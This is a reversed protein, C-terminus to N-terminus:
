RLIVIPQAKRFIEKNGKLLAAKLYYIGNSIDPLTVSYINKIDPNAIIKKVLRFNCTYVSIEVSDAGM